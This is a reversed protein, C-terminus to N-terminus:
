VSCIEMSSNVSYGFGGTNHTSTRREPKVRKDHSPNKCDGTGTWVGPKETKNWM